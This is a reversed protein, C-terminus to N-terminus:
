RREIARPARADVSNRFSACLLRAHADEGDCPWLGGTAPAHGLECLGVLGLWGAFCVAAISAVWNRIRKKKTGDM